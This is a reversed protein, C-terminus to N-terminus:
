DRGSVDRERGAPAATWSVAREITLRIAARTPLDHTRYQPHRALLAAVVTPPMPPEVLAATGELRVWALEAWEESWRDVLLSVRPDREIDRVRALARVDAVAKPKADLPIWLRATGDEEDLVAYCVPVPRPRGDPGITALTARRAEDLLVRVAPDLTV